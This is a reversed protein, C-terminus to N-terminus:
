ALLDNQKMKSIFEQYTDIVHASAFGRYREFLEVYKIILGRHTNNLQNSQKLSKIFYSFGESYRAQRLYYTALELFLRSIRDLIIQETYMGLALPQHELAQIMMDLRQLCDDIDFGFKNANEVINCLMIVKDEKRSEFYDIYEHLVTADGSSLRTVLANAYAWEQFLNKWHLTDSDTEKVWSLDSYLQIFRLAEKYEGRLDYINGLLLYSYALYFFLPRKPKKPLMAINNESFYYIRAKHEMRRVINEVKDWRYLARYANALDKLADLQSAEDLREVFPEFQIAAQYNKDQDTGQGILFLRYQCLALRESHQKRETLAVNEYLIAAAETKGEEYLEEALEFLLHAYLPNDLLLGVIERIHSLKNLEACKLLLPRVRRWDPDKEHIYESIYAQYFYGEPHGMVATLRELQEVALPRNGSLISSVTGPNLDLLKAMQTLSLKHDEMYEEMAMIITTRHKM